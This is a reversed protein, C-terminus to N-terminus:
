MGIILYKSAMHAYGSRWPQIPAVSQTPTLTPVPTVKPTAAPTSLPVAPKPEQLVPAIPQPAQQTTTTPQPVPRPFRTHAQKSTDSPAEQVADNCKVSCQRVHCRTCHYITRNATCVQYSDKPLICVVTTPIYIKRLTDFTAIPQGAYLLAHQKSCKDANSKAKKAWDELCDQVQLTAPDTNHIRPSITTHIKCNYLMQSPSPLKADVPM